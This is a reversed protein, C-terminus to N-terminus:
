RCAYRLSDILWGWSDRHRCLAEMNIAGDTAASSIISIVWIAVIVALIGMVISIAIGWAALTTSAQVTRAWFFTAISAVLGIPPNIVALAISVIGAGKVLNNTQVATEAAEAARVKAM